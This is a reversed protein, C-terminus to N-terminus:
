CGDVLVWLLCIKFIPVPQPGCDIANLQRINTHSFEMTYSPIHYIRIIHNIFWSIVPTGWGTHFLWCGSIFHCIKVM